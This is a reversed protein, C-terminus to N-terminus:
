GRTVSSQLAACSTFPNSFRPSRKELELGFNRGDAIITECLIKVLDFCRCALKVNLELFHYFLVGQCTGEGLIKRRKKLKKALLNHIFPFRQRPIIQAVQYSQMLLCGWTHLLWLLRPESSLSRLEMVQQIQILSASNKWCINETVSRLFM